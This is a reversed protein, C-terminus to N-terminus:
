RYPGYKKGKRKGTKKGGKTLTYWRGKSGDAMKCVKGQKVKMGTVGAFRVANIRSKFKKQM